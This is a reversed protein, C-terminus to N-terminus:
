RGAGPPGRARCCRVCTRVVLKSRDVPAAKGAEEVPAVSGLVSSEEAEASVVADARRLAPATWLARM